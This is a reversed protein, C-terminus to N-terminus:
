WAPVCELRDRAITAVVGAIQRRISPPAEFGLALEYVPHAGDMRAVRCRGVVAAVEVDPDDMRLTCSDGVGLWDHSEVVAGRLSIDVIRTPCFGLRSELGTSFPLSDHRDFDSM